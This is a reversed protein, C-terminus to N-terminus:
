FLVCPEKENEEYYIQYLSYEKSILIFDIVILIFILVSFIFNILFAHSQYIFIITAIALQCIALTLKFVLFNYGFLKNDYSRKKFKFPYNFFILFITFGFIFVVFFYITAPLLTEQQNKSILAGLFLLSLLTSILVGAQIIIASKLFRNKENERQYYIEDLYNIIFTKKTAITQKNFFYAAALTGLNILLWYSSGKMLFYSLVAIIMFMVLLPIIVKAPRKFSDGYFLLTKSEQALIPQYSDESLVRLKKKEKETYYLDNVTVKFYLAAEYIQEASMNTKNSKWKSLTTRDINHEKAYSIMSKKTKKLYIFFNQHIIEQRSQDLNDLKKLAIM